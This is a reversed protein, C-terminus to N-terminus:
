VLNKLCSVESVRGEHSKARQRLYEGFRYLGLAVAKLQEFAAASVSVYHFIV